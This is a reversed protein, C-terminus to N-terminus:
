SYIIHLFVISNFHGHAFNVDIYLLFAQYTLISTYMMLMVFYIGLCSVNHKTIFCWFNRCQLWAGLM